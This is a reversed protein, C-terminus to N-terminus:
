GGERLGCDMADQRLVGLILACRGTTTAPAATATASTGARCEGRECVVEVAQLRHGVDLLQHRRRRRRSFIQASSPGASIQVCTLKQPHFIYRKQDLPETKLPAPASKIKSSEKPSNSGPVYKPSCKLVTEKQRVRTGEHEDWLTFDDM